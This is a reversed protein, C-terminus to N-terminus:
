TTHERPPRWRQVNEPDVEFAAFPYQWIAGTGAGFLPRSTSAGPWGSKAFAMKAVDLVAAEPQPHRERLHAQAEAIWHERQTVNPNLTELLLMLVQAMILKQLCHDKVMKEFNAPEGVMRPDALIFVESKKAECALKYHPNHSGNRGVWMCCRLLRRLEPPEKASGLM